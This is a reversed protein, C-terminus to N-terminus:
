ILFGLHAEIGELVEGTEVLPLSVVGPLADQLARMHQMKRATKAMDWECARAVAAAAPSVGGQGGAPRAQRYLMAAAEDLFPDPLMNVIVARVPARGEERFRRHFEVTESVAMEEPITAIALASRRPDLFAEEMQRARKAVPGVGFAGGATAPLQLLSLAHGSAPMDVVFLDFEREDGARGATVLSYLRSLVVIERGAPVADYFYRIVRNNIVMTAIAHSGLAESLYSVVANESDIDVAFLDPALAVPQYGIKTPAGHSFMKRITSRSDLEVLLTRVGRAAARRGLLATFTSKGTGGKGTVFVLRKAALDDVCAATTGPDFM